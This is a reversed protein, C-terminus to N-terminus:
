LCNFALVLFDDPAATINKIESLTTRLLPFLIGYLIDDAKDKLLSHTIFSRAVHNFLSLSHLILSTNKASLNM